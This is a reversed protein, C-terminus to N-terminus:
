QGSVKEELERIQDRLKAAEEFEEREILLKLHKKLSEIQRKDHILGGNRKPIKGAHDTTGHIRRFLPDLREAFQDYCEDCGFRGIKTFQTYTM